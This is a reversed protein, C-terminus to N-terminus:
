FNNSNWGDPGIPAVVGQRKGGATAAKEARKIASEVTKGAWERAQEREKKQELALNSKFVDLEAQAQTVRAAAMQMRQASAALSAQHMAIETQTSAAKLKALTAQQLALEKKDVAQKKDIAEQLRGQLAKETALQLYKERDRTVEQGLVTFTQAVSLDGESDKRLPADFTWNTRTFDLVAARAKLQNAEEVLSINPTSESVINEAFAKPDGILDVMEQAKNVQQQTTGILEVWKPLEKAAWLLEQAPNSAVIVVDGVGFVAFVRVASVFGLLVGLLGKNM